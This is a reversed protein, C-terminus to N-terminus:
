ADAPDPQVLQWDTVTGDRHRRYVHHGEADQYQLSLQWDHGTADTSTDIQVSTTLDAVDDIAGESTLYRSVITEVPEGDGAEDTVTETWHGRWFDNYDTEQDSPKATIDGRQNNEGDPLVSHTPMGQFYNKHHKLHHEQLMIVNDWFSDLRAIIATQKGNM